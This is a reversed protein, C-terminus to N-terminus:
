KPLEALDALLQNYAANHAEALASGEPLQAPYACGQQEAVEIWFREFYWVMRERITQKQSQALFFDRLENNEPLKM